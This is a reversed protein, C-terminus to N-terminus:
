LARYRTTCHANKGCQRTITVSVLIEEPEDPIPPEIRKCHHKQWYRSKRSRQPRRNHRPM